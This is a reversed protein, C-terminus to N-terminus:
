KTVVRRYIALTEEACRQWSFRAAQLPGRQELDHRLDNNQWIREIIEAWALVDQPPVLLAADGVIEPLSSVDSVITAAGCALAELVPLGFGEYLSPNVYMVCANYLWRLDEPQINGLLLVSDSLRLDRLTDFIAQDRWGRAGAVVLSYPIDPRRDHCLRLAKLLTPLNKRPELTSVFLMFNGARLVQQNIQRTEGDALMIPAFMPAAAEYVLDIRELPLDLLRAIDRRTAESVAIVADAHQVSAHVQSYYRRANDDLIDPFHLFALDHITVIAPCSRRKPAIFDPFHILDLRLRLLEVPLSWAELRHHPPTFLTARSVNPAVVLPRLHDRHQLSFLTDPQALPALATLLQRTYESIGGRRYANLRADIGVRM